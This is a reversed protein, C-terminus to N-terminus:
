RNTKPSAQNEIAIEEPHYKHWYRLAAGVAMYSPDATEYDGILAETAGGACLQEAEYAAFAPVLQKEDAGARMRDRFWNAWRRVCQELADLHSTVSDAVL